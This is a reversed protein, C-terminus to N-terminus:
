FGDLDTDEDFVLARSPPVGKKGAGLSLRKLGTRPPRPQGAQAAPGGNLGAKAGGVMTMLQQVVDKMTEAQASLEEAASAGEEANAAISQTVEDMQVMATNVQGIGQSQEGSAAAIESVLDAVKISSESVEKFSDQTKSVLDSGQGIRDVIDVILTETGKAAEAARMALNRVEDAVVAFGAGAEGARAAEVAANLALLNTQFAIEDISKVIKGTEGGLESIKAMSQAMEDMGRGANSIVAGAEGMLSDAQAANEANSKTMSGMEEMASTTEELSAAQESSSEALSQSSTSVQASASAVEAAGTALADIIRTLAKNIGAATVWGFVVSMVALILAVVIIVTKTSGELSIAERAYSAMREEVRAKLAAVSEDAEKQKERLDKRILEKLQDSLGLEELVPQFISEFAAYYEQAPAQVQENGEAKLKQYAEKLRDIYRQEARALINKEQRRLEAVLLQTKENSALEEMKRGTEVLIKVAGQSNASSDYWGITNVLDLQRTKLDMIRGCLSQYEGFGAQAKQTLDEVQGGKQCSPVSVGKLAAVKEGLTSSGSIMGQGLARFQGLKEDIRAKYLELNTKNRIVGVLENINIRAGLLSEQMAAAVQLQPVRAEPILQYTSGMVGFRNIFFISLAILFFTLVATMFLLKQKITMSRM